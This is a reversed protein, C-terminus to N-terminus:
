AGSTIGFLLANYKTVLNPASQLVKDRRRLIRNLRRLEWWPAYASPLSASRERDGDLADWPNTMGSLGRMGADLAEELLGEMAKMEAPEPRLGPKMPRSLGM